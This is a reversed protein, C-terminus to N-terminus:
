SSINIVFGHSEPRRCHYVAAFSGLESAFQALLIPLRCPVLKVLKINEHRATIPRVIIDYRPPPLVYALVYTIGDYFHLCFTKRFGTKHWRTYTKNM